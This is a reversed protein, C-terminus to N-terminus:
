HEHEASTKGLEAKLVFSNASVYKSGARLGSVIEVIKGNSRGTKVPQVVFGGPVAVFVAPKGNVEQLAEAKVAVPVQVDPGMVQVTVFLGPRWAMDPNVLTVRAKATRTQEGLLSGVYSVTGTAKGDFATSSIQVQQGVRVSALDKAAVVFEAWVSSLDSITFVSADEKVAEGLALHKEVVLGDFPARLEFRNLAGTAPGAGIAVLKQQANQVAIRAEQLATRAQLFDQEASIKEEWLRKERDYTTKALDLRKQAALLESRQESLVTSAIIALVQGKKVQQGINAPVSEAVGALRPVVHATRDENFRIEGPFQVGAQVAAAGATEIGVGAKAIQEATLEIKGEEKSFQVEVAQKAGALTLSATAMFVHPEEIAQESELADSGPKFRIAASEGTARKITGSASVGTVLPKGNQVVWLKLKAEGGQETQGFEITTDGARYLNGGHPGKEAAAHHEKDGHSADDDHKAASSEGHHENDKHAAAETHEASENGETTRGLFMVAGTAMMGAVVVAAIATKQKTTISM